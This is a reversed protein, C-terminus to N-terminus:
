SIWRSTSHTWVTPNCNSTNESVAEDLAAKSATKGARGERTHKLRTAFATRRLTAELPKAYRNKRYLANLRKEFEQSRTLTQRITADVRRDVWTQERNEDQSRAEDRAAHLAEPLRRAARRVLEMTWDPDVGGSHAMAEYQKPGIKAFQRVGNVSLAIEPVANRVGAFSQELGAWSAFDYIPALIVGTNKTDRAHLLGINKRHMDANGCLVCSAIVTTLRECERLPREGHELLLRYLAPYLPEGRTASEYKDDASWGGAQLFDEQHRAKVVGGELTRDSRESLVCQHGGFLRSLTQAAPVGLHALARQMVAETGAEGPLHDRDEHKIIWTNLAQGQALQWGGGSTPTATMKGRMGALASKRWPDAIPWTPRRRETRVRAEEHLRQGIEADTVAEYGTAEAGPYGDFSVAGAFDQDANAWLMTALHRRLARAEGQWSSTRRTTATRFPDASPGEPLLGTFWETIAPDTREPEWTRVSLRQWPQATHSPRMVSWGTPDSAMDLEGAVEGYLKITLKM